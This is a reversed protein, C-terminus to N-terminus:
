HSTGRVTESKKQLVASAVGYMASSLSTARQTADRMLAKVRLKVLVAQRTCVMKLYRWQWVAM